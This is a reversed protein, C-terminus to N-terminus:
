TTLLVSKAKMTKEDIGKVSLALFDSLQSQSFIIDTNDENENKLSCCVDSIIRVATIWEQNSSVTNDNNASELPVKKVLKMVTIYIETDKEIRLIDLCYTLTTILPM